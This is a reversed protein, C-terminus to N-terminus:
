RPPAEGGEEAGGSRAGAGRPGRDFRIIDGFHKRALREVEAFAHDRRLKEYLGEEIIVQLVAEGGPPAAGGERGARGVAVRIRGGYAQRLESTRSVLRSLAEVDCVGEFSGLALGKLSQFSTELDQVWGGATREATGRDAARFVPLPDRAVDRVCAEFEVLDAPTIWGAKDDIRRLDEVAHGFRRRSLAALAALHRAHDAIPSTGHRSEFADLLETAAAADGGFLARAAEFYDAFDARAERSIPTEAAPPDGATGLLRVRSDGSQRLEEVAEFVGHSVAIARAVGGAGENREAAEPLRLELEDLARQLRWLAADVRQKEAFTRAEGVLTRARALRPRLSAVQMGAAVFDREEAPTLPRAGPRTRGLGAASKWAHGAVTSVDSLTEEIERRGIRSAPVATGTIFAGEGAPEPVGTRGLRYAVGAAGVLLVAAAASRLWGLARRRRVEGGQLALVRRLVGAEFHPSPEIGPDERLLRRAHRWAEAEAAFAGCGAAHATMADAADAPLRGDSWESLLTRFAPCAPCPERPESRTM